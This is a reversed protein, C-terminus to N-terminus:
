NSIPHLSNNIARGISWEGNLFKFWNLGTEPVLAHSQLPALDAAARHARGPVAPEHVAAALADSVVAGLISHGPEVGTRQKSKDM